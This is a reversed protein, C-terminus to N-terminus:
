ALIIVHTKMLERAYVPSYLYTGPYKQPTLIQSPISLNNLIASLYMANMVTSMMGVQDVYNRDIKTNTRGGRVINGGGCMLVNGILHQPSIQSITQQLSDIDIFYDGSIKALTPKNNIAPYCFANNHKHIMYKHIM